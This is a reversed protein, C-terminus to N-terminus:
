NYRVISNTPSKLESHAFISPHLLSDIKFALRPCLSMHITSEDRIPDLDPSVTTLDPPDRRILLPHNEPWFAAVSHNVPRDQKVSESQFYGFPKLQAIYNEWVSRKSQYALKKQAQSQKIRLM